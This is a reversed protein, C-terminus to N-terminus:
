FFNHFFLEHRPGNPSEKERDHERYRAGEESSTNTPAALVLLIVLASKAIITFVLAFAICITHSFYGAAHTEGVREVFSGATAVFVGVAFRILGAGVVWADRRAVLIWFAGIIFYAWRTYARFIRAIIHSGALPIKTVIAPVILVAVIAHRAVGIIAGADLCFFLSFFIM